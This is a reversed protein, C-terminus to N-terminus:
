ICTSTLSIGSDDPYCSNQSSTRTRDGNTITLNPNLLFSSKIELVKGDFHNNLNRISSAKQSESKHMSQNEHSLHKQIFNISNKKMINSIIKQNKNNFNKEQPNHRIEKNLVQAISPAKLNYYFNSKTRLTSQLFVTSYLFSLISSLIVITATKYLFKTSSFLLPVASVVFNITKLLLPISITKISCKLRNHRRLNVTFHAYIAYLLCYHTSFFLVFLYLLCTFFDIRWELWVTCAITSSLIFFITLTTYTSTFFNLIGLANAASILVEFLM